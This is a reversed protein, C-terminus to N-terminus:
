ILPLHKPKRPPARLNEPLRAYAKYIRNVGTFGAAQADPVAEKNRSPPRKNKTVFEQAYDKLWAELEKDNKLPRAKRKISTALKLVDDRKFLPRTKIIHQSSPPKRPFLGLSRFDKPDEDLTMGIWEKTPIGRRDENSDITEVGGSCAANVLNNLAAEVVKDDRSKIRLWTLSVGGWEEPGGFIESNPKKSAVKNKDAGAQTTLEADGTVLWTLAQMGTLWAPLSQNKASKKNSQQPVKPTM